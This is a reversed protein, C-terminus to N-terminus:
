PLTIRSLVSGHSTTIMYAAGKESHSQLRIQVTSKTIYGTGFQEANRTRYDFPIPKGSPALLQDVSTPWVNHSAHYEVVLENVESRLDPLWLDGSHRVRHPGQCGLAFPLVLLCVISSHQWRQTM